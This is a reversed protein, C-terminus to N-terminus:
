SSIQGFSKWLGPSGERVCIWGVYGTPQPSDNWVIDGLSYNGGTPVGSGVEQKKGQVRIPGATTIDADEGFNKVGIGLRGLINVKNRLTINGEAGITIRATDDTIIDLNSTTWTGLKFDKEESDIVFEHDLSAISLAGNPSETGLGLRQEEDYWFLFHGVSFNGEVNLNQLTGVRRLNSKVVSTGLETASLVTTNGIKYTKDKNVDISESSFFRDEEGGQYMFQRTPGNGTWILGKGYPHKGNEGKFELPASRETRTDTTLEDVHLKLAKIEGDVTLNGEVTVSNKIEKVSIAPVTIQDNEVVLVPDGVYTANDKIGVSAFNSYIGGNLKNGSISRDLIEQKPPPSSALEEIADGLSSLKQHLNEKSMYTNIM